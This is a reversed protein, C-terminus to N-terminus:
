TLFFQLTWQPSQCLWDSFVTRTLNDFLIHKWNEGISIDTFIHCVHFRWSSREVRRVYGRPMRAVSWFCEWSKARTSVFIRWISKRRACPFLLTEAAAAAARGRHGSLRAETTNDASRCRRLSSCAGASYDLSM